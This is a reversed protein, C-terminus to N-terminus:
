CEVVPKVMIVMQKRLIEFAIECIVSGIGPMNTSLIYIYEVHQTSVNYCFPLM